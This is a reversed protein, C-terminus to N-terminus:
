RWSWLLSNENLSVFPHGNLLVAEAHFCEHPWYLCKYINTQTLFETTTCVGYDTNKWVGYNRYWGYSVPLQGFLGSFTIKFPQVMWVLALNSIIIMCHSTFLSM